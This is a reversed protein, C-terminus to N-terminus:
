GLARVKEMFDQRPLSVPLYPHERCANILMASAGQGGSYVMDSSSPVSPDLRPVKGRIIEGHSQTSFPVAWIASKLSDLDFRGCHCYKGLSVDPRRRGRRGPSASRPCWRTSLRQRYSMTSLRNAWAGRRKGSSQWISPRCMPRM